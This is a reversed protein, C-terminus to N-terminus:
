PEGVRQWQPGDADFLAILQEHGDRDIRWLEAGHPVRVSDVKFEAIVDRGESPAFGNGRFPNREIVWGRMARMAAENPGGYPIRYLNGRYATWRLAYVEDDDPKFPSGSYNLGLGTYLREPTRLYAVENARHVFGSVRDYGRELYYALQTTPITKQMPVPREPPPPADSRYAAAAEEEPAADAHEDHLGVETAWSALAVIQSGPLTAGVPTGPNVAFSLAEDPWIRILKAFKVWAAEVDAGVHDVLRERSTFVSLYPVNDIEETRWTSPEALLRDPGGRGPVLVKALLLTSLYSDTNGDDAANLLSAETPNAPKFELDEAHRARRNGPAARAHALPPEFSRRPVTPDEDAPEGEQATGTGAPPATATGAAPPADPAGNHTATGPNASNDAPRQRSAPSEIGPYSAPESVAGAAVGTRVTAPEPAVRVAAEPAQVPAPETFRRSSTSEPAARTPVPGAPTRRPLAGSGDRAGAVEIAVRSAAQEAPAPAGAAPSQVAPRDLPVQAAAPRDPPLQAATPRDPPLQGAAPRDAPSQAATPRDPPREEAIRRPFPQDVLRRPLPEQPARGPLRGDLPRRPLPESPTRGAQDVPRRPLAGPGNGGPRQGAFAPAAGGAPSSGPVAPGAPAPTRPVAASGASGSGAAGSGVAGSGVPGSGVGGSGIPDTGSAAAAATHGPGSGISSAARLRALRDIVSGPDAPEPEAPGSRTPVQAVARARQGSTQEIRARAGMTRGPLRVDGRDIQAVFWSPLYAEIPLGPNIALWWEASPWDAALQRFPVARYGGAQEGLCAVLAQPSTFALVHTRGDATWTGWGAAARGAGAGPPVPLLLDTRGLLRFYMEQDNVRLADRMATEAETAPHWDTVAV